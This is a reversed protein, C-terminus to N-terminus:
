MTEPITNTYMIEDLCMNLHSFFSECPIPQPFRGFVGFRKPVFKHTEILKGQLPLLVPISTYLEKVAVITGICTYNPAPTTTATTNVVSM